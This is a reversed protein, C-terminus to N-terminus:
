GDQESERATEIIDWATFMLALWSLILTVLILHSETVISMLYLVVNVTGIVGAGVFLIWGKLEGNM